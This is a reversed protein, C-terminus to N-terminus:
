TWLSLFIFLNIPFLKSLGKTPDSLGQRASSGVGSGGLWFNIKEFADEMSFIM